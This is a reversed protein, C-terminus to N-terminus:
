AHEIEFEAGLDRLRVPAYVELFHASHQKGDILVAAADIGNIKIPWFHFLKQEWKSEYDGGPQKEHIMASIKPQSRDFPKDLTLNLSGPFPTWGLVERIELMRRCRHAAMAKSAGGGGDQAKGKYM